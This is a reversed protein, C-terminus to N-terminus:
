ADAFMAEADFKRYASMEEIRLVFPTEDNCPDLVLADDTALLVLVTIAEGGANTMEIVDGTHLQEALITTM